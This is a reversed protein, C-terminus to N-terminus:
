FPTVQWDSPYTVKYLTPLEISQGPQLTVETEFTGKDTDIKAGKPQVLDVVIKEDRSLPVLDRLIVRNAVKMRNTIKTVYSREEVRRGGFIGADKGKETVIRREVLINQNAGFGITVEAGPLTEEIAGTGNTSGDVVAQMEGALMPLPFANKLKGILFATEATLPVTETHFACPMTMSALPLVTEEDASLVTVRGEIAARFGTFSATVEEMGSGRASKMMPAPAASGTAAMDYMATANLKQAGYIREEEVRDVYMTQPEEPKAGAGPKSTELYLAVDKWDEGTAQEVRCLYSVAVNGAVTDAKAIYSPTWLVGYVYYSITGSTRGGESVAEVAYQACTAEEKGRQKELAENAIALEEGVRRLEDDIKATQAFSERAAQSADAYAAKSLEYLETRGTEALGKNVAVVLNMRQQAYDAATRRDAELSAKRAEIARVKAELDKLAQSRAENKFENAFTVVGFSLAAGTTVGVQVTGSDARTPLGPFRLRASEGAKMDVEFTRTVRAAGRYVTVSDVKSDVDLTAASLGAFQFM